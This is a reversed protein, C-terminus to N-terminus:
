YGEQSLFVKLSQRTRYLIVRINNETLHTKSAIEWISEAYFYRHLFLYRDRQSLSDLFRDIAASLAHAQAEDVPDSGGSVCEELEDLSSAYENQGRKEASKKRFIDICIRRMIKALYAPFYSPRDPPIANWVRLYTDNEAEEMDQRDQLIGSAIHILFRAYKNQTQRIANEDRRWFLEIIENDEM